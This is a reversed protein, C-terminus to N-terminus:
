RRVLLSAIPRRGPSPALVFNRLSVLGRVADDDFERDRPNAGEAAIDVYGHAFDIVAVSLPARERDGDYAVMVSASYLRMNPAVKYTRTLNHIVRDVGSVFERRGDGPMFANVVRQLEGPSMRRGERRNWHDVIRGNARICADVLRIAHSRTTTRLTHSIQGFTKDLSATIEFSRTGLKLDAVCPSSMNHSLDELLLYRNQGVTSAGFFKAAVRTLPLARIASYFDFERSNFPKAVVGPRDTLVRLNGHGGGQSWLLSTAAASFPRFCLRPRALMFFSEILEILIIPYITVIRGRKM